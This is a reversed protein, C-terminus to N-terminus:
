PMNANIEYRKTRGSLTPIKRCLTRADMQMRSTRINFGFPKDTHEVVAEMSKEM